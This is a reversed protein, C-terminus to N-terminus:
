ETKGAKGHVEDLRKRIRQAWADMAKKTYDWKSYAKMYSSVGESIGEDWAYKKGAETDIYAALQKNTLSDM